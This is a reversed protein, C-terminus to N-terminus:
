MYRKSGAPSDDRYPIEKYMTHSGHLLFPRSQSVLYLEELSSVFDFGPQAWNPFRPKFALSSNKFDSNNETGHQWLRTSNHHECNQQNRCRSTNILVGNRSGSVLSTKYNLAQKTNFKTAKSKVRGTTRPCKKGTFSARSSPHEQKQSNKCSKLHLSIGLVCHETM